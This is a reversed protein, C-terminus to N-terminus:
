RKVYKGSLLMWVFFPAGCVAATVGIPLEMGPIVYRGALDACVLFCGGTFFSASILRRNGAGIVLRVMHPILLGVFGIMGTMYVTAGTMIATVAIYIKRYVALNRGMSLSIDDGILMLDLIRSQTMFYFTGLLIIVGLGMISFWDDVSINGMLWFQVSRTKSPDAMAQVIFNVVASCLANLALGILILSLSGSKGSFASFILILASILGAGLFACVGVGSLGELTGIGLSIALVAGLGAGSSVGLLYPDALPNKMIAQM